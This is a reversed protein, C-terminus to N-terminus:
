VGVRWYPALMAPAFASSAKAGRGGKKLSKALAGFVDMGTEFFQNEATEVLRAARDALAGGTDTVTIAKARRDTPHPARAILHRTELARLVESTMVPDTGAEAAVDSQRVGHRRSSLWAAAILLRAQAHTLDLPALAARLCALWQSSVRELVAARSASPPTDRSALQPAASVAPRHM